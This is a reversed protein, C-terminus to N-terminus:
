PILSKLTFTHKKFALKFIVINQSFSFIKIFVRKKQVLKQTKIALGVLASKFLTLSLLSVNLYGVCIRSNGDIQLSPIKKPLTM